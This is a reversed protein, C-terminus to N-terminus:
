ASTTMTTTLLSSPRLLGARFLKTLSPGKILAYLPPFTGVTEPNDDDGLGARITVVAGAPDDESANDLGFSVMGLLDSVLGVTDVFGGLAAM